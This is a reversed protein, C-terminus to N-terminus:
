VELDSQTAFLTLYISINDSSLILSNIIVELVLDDFILDLKISKFLTYMTVYRSNEYNEKLQQDAKESDTSIEHVPNVEPSDLGIKTQYGNENEL